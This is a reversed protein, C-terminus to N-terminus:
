YNLYRISKTRNDMSGYINDTQGATRTDYRSGSIYLESYHALRACGNYSSSIVNRWSYSANWYGGSCNTGTLTVSSGSGYSGTFHIGIVFSSSGSTSNARRTADIKSRKDLRFGKSMDPSEAFLEEGSRVAVSGGSAFAMAERFSGFCTPASVVFEGDLLVDLVQLVCHSEPEPAPDAAASGVSLLLGAGLVLAAVVATRQQWRLAGTETGHHVMGGSM